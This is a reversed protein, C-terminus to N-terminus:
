YCGSRTAEFIRVVPSTPAVNKKREALIRNAERVIRDLSDLDVSYMLAFVDALDNM